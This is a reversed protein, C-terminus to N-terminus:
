YAADNQKTFLLGYNLEKVPTSAIKLCHLEVWHRANIDNEM